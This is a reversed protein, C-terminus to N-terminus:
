LDKATLIFNFCKKKFFLSSCNLWTWLSNTKFSLVRYLRFCYFFATVQINWVCVCVCSCVCVGVCVGVCVCRCVCVCVGEVCVCVCLGLGLPFPCLLLSPLYCDTWCRSHTVKGCVTRCWTTTCRRWSLKWRIRRCILWAHFTVLATVTTPKPADNVFDGPPPTPFLIGYMGGWHNLTLILVSHWFIM